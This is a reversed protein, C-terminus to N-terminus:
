VNLCEFCYNKIEKDSSIGISVCIYPVSVPYSVKYSINLRTEDIKDIEVKIDQFSSICKEGILLELNKIINDCILDTNHKVYAGLM